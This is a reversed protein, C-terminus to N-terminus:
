RRFLPNPGDRIFLCRGFARAKGLLLKCRVACSEDGVNVLVFGAVVAFAGLGAMPAPSIGNLAADSLFALPITLSLGVTAVTPTTLVVARAWLYDSMQVRLDIRNYSLIFIRFFIM